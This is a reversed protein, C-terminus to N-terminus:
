KEVSTTYESGNAIQPHSKAEPIQKQQMNNEEDEEGLYIRGKKAASKKALYWVEPKVPRQLVTTSLLEKKALRTIVEAKTIKRIQM